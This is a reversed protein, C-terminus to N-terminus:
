KAVCYTGTAKIEVMVEGAKLGDLKVTAVELPKGAGFAVAARVDM